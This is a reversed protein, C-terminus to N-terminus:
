KESRFDQPLEASSVAHKTAAKLRDKITKRVLAPDSDFAQLWSKADLRRRWSKPVPVRADDLQECVDGLNQDGTWEVGIGAIIEAVRVHAAINVKPGSKQKAAL